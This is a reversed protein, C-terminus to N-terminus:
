QRFLVENKPLQSKCVHRQAAQAFDKQENLIPIAKDILYQKLSELVLSKCAPLKRQAARSAQRAKSVDSPRSGALQRQAKKPQLAGGSDWVARTNESAQVPQQLPPNAERKDAGAVIVFRMPLLCEQKDTCIFIGASTRSSSSHSPYPLKMESLLEPLFPVRELRNCSTKGFNPRRIKM